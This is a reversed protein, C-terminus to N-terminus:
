CTIKWRSSSMRPAVSSNMRAPMLEAQTFRPNIVAVDFGEAVLQVRSTRLPLVHAWALVARGQAKGNSAFNHIVEAKGCKSAVESNGQMPVGEGAVGRPYRIFTLTIRSATAHFMMGAWNM